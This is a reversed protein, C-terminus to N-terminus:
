IHIRCGNEQSYLRCTYMNSTYMSSTVFAFYYNRVTNSLINKCLIKARQVYVGVRIPDRM